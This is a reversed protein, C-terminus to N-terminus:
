RASASAVSSRKLVLDVTVPYHDSGVWRGRRLRVVEFQRSVLVHDIPIGALVPGVLKSGTAAPYTRPWKWGHDAIRLGSVELLRRFRPSWPTLNFDGVVLTPVDSRRAVDAYTELQDDQQRKLSARLSYPPHVAVLRIPRDNHIITGVVFFSRDVHQLTRHPLTSLANSIPKRALVVVDTSRRWDKPLTYPYDTLLSAIHPHWRAVAEQIVVIDAKSERVFRLVLDHRRNKWEVNLTVVRLPAGLAANSGAPVARGSHAITAVNFAIAGALFACTMWGRIALALLMLGCGAALYPFRFHSFLDAVWWHEGFEAFTTLSILAIAGFIAVIRIAFRLRRAIPSPVAFRTM